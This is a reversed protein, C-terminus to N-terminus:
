WKWECDGEFIRQEIKDLKPLYNKCTFRQAIIGGDVKLVRM